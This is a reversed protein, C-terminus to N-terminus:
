EAEQKISQIQEVPSLYGFVYVRQANRIDINEQEVLNGQENLLKVVIVGPLESEVRYFTGDPRNVKGAYTVDADQYHIDLYNFVDSPLDTPKMRTRTELWEGNNDFFVKKLGNEDSFMAVNAGERYEWFPNEISSYLQGFAGRAAEPVTRQAFSANLLFITLFVFSLYKM